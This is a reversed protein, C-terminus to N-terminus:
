HLVHPNYYMRFRNFDSIDVVSTIIKMEQFDFKM